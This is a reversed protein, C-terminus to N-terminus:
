SNHLSNKIRYDNIDKGSNEMYSFINRQYQLTVPAKHHLYDLKIVKVVLDSIVPAARLLCMLMIQADRM